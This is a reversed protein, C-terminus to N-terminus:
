ATRPAGCAALVGAAAIVEEPDGKLSLEWEVAGPVAGKHITIAGRSSTANLLAALALCQRELTRLDHPKGAM